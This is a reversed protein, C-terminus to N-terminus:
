SMGRFAELRWPHKGTQKHVHERVKNTSKAALRQVLDMAGKVRNKRVAETSEVRHAISGRLTILDDLAQKSKESTRGTWVWSSSLSPLGITKSFLEDVQDARPTNLTGTTKALLEALNNALAQKWGDGALSWANPGNHKSAVRELVQKPFVTHSSANQVMFTLANEALDEVFAEWCAVVLVIASKNLIEVGVKRGPTKGALQEHINLLGGVEYINEILQEVHPSRAM